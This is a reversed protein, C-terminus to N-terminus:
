MAIKWFDRDLIEDPVNKKIMQEKFDEFDYILRYWTVTRKNKGRLELTAFGPADIEDRSQGVSGPNILLPYKLRFTKSIPFLDYKMLCPHSSKIPPRNVDKSQHAFQMHSHGILMNKVPQLHCAKSLKEQDWPFLYNMLSYYYDKIKILKNELISKPPGGHITYIERDETIMSIPLKGLWELSETSIISEQFDFMIKAIDRFKMEFAQNMLEPLLSIGDFKNDKILKALLYFDHNGLISRVKYKKLLSITENPCGGYGVVDGACIIEDIGLDQLQELAIAISVNNAHVDAILGYKKIM